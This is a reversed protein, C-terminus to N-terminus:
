RCRCPAAWWPLLAWLLEWPVGWTGAWPTPPRTPCRPAAQLLLDVIAELSEFDVSLQNEAYFGRTKSWRLPLACPPGPSLLDRVQENYIELYSASLALSPSRSRSHELLCAFSRQMLGLVAPAAPQAESQGLPGMLTYTKGSGTQGFAFVTCSFGDIALEVLQRMGSGEFVAEQPRHRHNPTPHPPVVAGLSHVVRRDGRRTETCTLPRVWVPAAATVAVRPAPDARPAGRRCW